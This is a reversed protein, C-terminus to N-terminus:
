AQDPPRWLRPSEAVTVRASDPGQWDLLALHTLEPAKRSSYLMGQARLARAADSARWSRAPRGSARDEAHRSVADAPDIGLQRCLGPDRLDLLRTAEVQLAQIVRPPDNPALYTALAVSAGAASLSLYLAPQGDHHFRGKPHQAPRLPESTDAASLIRWARGSFPRFLHGARSM